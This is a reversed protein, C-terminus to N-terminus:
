GVSIEEGEKGGHKRSTSGNSNPRHGTEGRKKERVKAMVKRWRKGEM